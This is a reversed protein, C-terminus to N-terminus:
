LVKRKSAMDLWWSKTWLRKSNKLVVELFTKKGCPNRPKFGISSIILTEKPSCNISFAGDRNANTGKTSGKVAITAGPYTRWLQSLLEKLNQAKLSFSLVGIMLSVFWAVLHLKNRITSIPLNFHKM